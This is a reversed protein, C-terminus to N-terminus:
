VCGNLLNISQKLLNIVQGGFAGRFGWPLWVERGMFTDTSIRDVKIANATLTGRDANEDVQDKKIEGSKTDFKVVPMKIITKNNKDFFFFFFL